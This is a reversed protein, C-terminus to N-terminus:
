AEPVPSGATSGPFIVVDPSLAVTGSEPVAQFTGHRQVLDCLRAAVGAIRGHPPAPAAARGELRDDLDAILRRADAAKFDEGRATAIAIAREALSRAADLDGILRAGYAVEVLAAAAGRETQAVLEMVRAFCADFDERDAAGGAAHAAVGTVIARDALPILPAAERLISSAIAYHGFKTFTYACDSAFFPIRPHQVPYLELAKELSEMADAFTGVEAELTFLDHAAMAALARLGAKRGRWFAKSFHRRARDHEGRQFHLGGMRLHGRTYWEDDRFLRALSISREFWLHARDYEALRTCAQGAVAAAVPSRPNLYAAAEAYEAATRDRAAGAAWESVALCAASVEAGRATGADTVLSALVALPATLGPEAAAAETLDERASSHVWGPAFLERRVTKPTTGWLHVARLRSWLVPGVTDTAEGLLQFAGRVAIPPPPSARHRNRADTRHGPARPGDSTV